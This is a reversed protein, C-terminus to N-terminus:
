SIDKTYRSNIPINTSFPTAIIDFTVWLVLMLNNEKFVSSRTHILYINIVFAIFIFSSLSELVLGSVASLTDNVTEFTVLGCGSALEVLKMTGRRSHISLQFLRLLWM